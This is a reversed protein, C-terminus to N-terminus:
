LDSVGTGRCAYCPQHFSGVQIKGRGRCTKCTHNQKEATTYPKTSSPSTFLPRILEDRVICYVGLLLIFGMMGYFAYEEIGAFFYTDVVMLALPFLFAFVYASKPLGGLEKFTPVPDSM